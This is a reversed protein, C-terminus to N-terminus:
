KSRTYQYKEVRLTIKRPELMDKLNNITNTDTAPDLDLVIVEGTNDDELEIKKVTIM